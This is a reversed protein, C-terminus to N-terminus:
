KIQLDMSAGRFVLVGAVVLNARSENEIEVPEWKSSSGSGPFVKSCVSKSYLM